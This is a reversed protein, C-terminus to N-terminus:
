AFDDFDSEICHVVRPREGRGILFLIDFGDGRGQVSHIKGPEPKVAYGKLRKRVETPSKAGNVLARVKTQVDDFDAFDLVNGNM